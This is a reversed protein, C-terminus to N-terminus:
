NPNARVCVNLVTRNKSPVQEAMCLNNVYVKSNFNRHLGTSDTVKHEGETRLQKKWMSEKGNERNPYKGAEAQLSRRKPGHIVKARGALM